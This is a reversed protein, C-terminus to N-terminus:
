NRDTWSYLYILGDWSAVAIMESKPHIAISVPNYQDLVVGALKQGTKSDFIYAVHENTIGAFHSRDLNWGGFLHRNMSDELREFYASINLPIKEKLHVTEISELNTATHLYDKEAKFIKKSPSLDPISFCTPLDKISINTNNKRLSFSFLDSEGNFYVHEVGLNSQHTITGIQKLLITNWFSLIGANLYCGAALYEGSSSFCMKDSPGLVHNNQFEPVRNKWNLQEVTNSYQGVTLISKGNPHIDMAARAPIDLEKLTQSKWNIQYVSFPSIALAGSRDPLMRLNILWNEINTEWRVEHSNLEIWNLFGGWGSILVEQNNLFLISQVTSKTIYFHYEGSNLDIVFLGRDTGLALKKDDPSFQVAEGRSKELAPIKVAEGSKVHWIGVRGNIDTASAFQGDSSLAVDMIWGMGETLTKIKNGNAFNLIQVEGADCGVLVFKELPDVKMTRVPNGVEYKPKNVVFSGWKREGTKQNFCGVYNYGGILIDKGTPTYCASWAMHPVRFASNGLTAIHKLKAVGSPIEGTEKTKTIPDIYNNQAKPQDVFLASVLCSVITLFLLKKMLPRKQIPNSYEDFNLGSIIFISLKNNEM